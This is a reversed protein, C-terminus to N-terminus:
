LGKKKFKIMKINEYKFNIILSSATYSGHPCNEWYNFFSHPVQRVDLSYPLIM